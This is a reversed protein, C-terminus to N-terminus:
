KLDKEELTFVEELKVEFCQAIYMALPLSPNYREREISIVTQRSVGLMQAMKEQSINHSKRLEKMRNKM